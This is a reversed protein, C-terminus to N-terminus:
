SYKIGEGTNGRTPEFHTRNNFIWFFSSRIEKRADDCQKLPFESNLLSDFCGQIVELSEGFTPLIILHITKQFNKLTQCKALWDTRMVKKM